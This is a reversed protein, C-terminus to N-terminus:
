TWNLALGDTVTDWGAFVADQAHRADWLALSPRVAEALPPQVLQVEPSVPATSPVAATVTRGLIAPPEQSTSIAQGFGAVSAIANPAGNGGADTPGEGLLAYGAPAAQFERYYAEAAAAEAQVKAISGGSQDHPVVVTCVDFGTQGSADTATAVILYVRGDGNDQREARLQLTGPGIDAADSANANDNAYVQVSLQVSPDADDNLGVSLGVNVLQGDPPWLLAHVVSTSPAPAAQVEYAGIDITGNVIRPAGRQDTPPADFIDGAAIAPSGVLLAYTRTPGSNDQLPGLKPDIPDTATGVLDSPDFGSGGTGDGILNHGLSHVTGDIDPSSASTNGALIINRISVQTGAQRIGGGTSASNSSVTSGIVTVTSGAASNYIAGGHGGDPSSSIASNGSFTSSEVTLTGWSYIGGGNGDFASNGIASNGSFTSSEVTLTDANYLGGGYRASNGSLTCSTVTGIDFPRIFSFIGGGGYSATNASFTSAAVTLTGLGFIGGGTHGASNGSFSSATVTLTESNFIGGGDDPIASNGRFSSATVTLMGNNEIGGGGDASNGSLTSATVTMRSGLFGHIGGGAGRPASNGSLTCDTVTLTSNWAEIGGGSTASNGTLTSSTVTVTASSTESYIGGGYGDATNADLTSAAVTLTGANYIGGGNGGNTASNGSLTSATVTLAGNSYIGGGNANTVSGDAITLGSIDVTVAAGIDFERSAHNGSVTIVDAGPGAITLDKSIALEGTTLTITGSLGAQFDVTGGAPTTAIADRLSGPDHDSLNTVTSPLYRDELTELRPRSRAALLPRRRLPLVLASRIQWPWRHTWLM